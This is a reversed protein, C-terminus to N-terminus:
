ALSVKGSFADKDAATAGLFEDVGYAEDAVGGRPAHTDGEGKGGVMAAGLDGKDMSRHMFSVQRDGTVNLAVGDGGGGFHM